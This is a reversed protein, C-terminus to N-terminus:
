FIYKEDSEKVIVLLPPIQIKFAQKGNIPKYLMHLGGYGIFDIIKKSPIYKQIGRLKQNGYILFIYCIYSKRLKSFTTKSKPKVIKNFFPFFFM